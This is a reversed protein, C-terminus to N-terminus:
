LPTAGALIQQKLKVLYEAHSRYWDARAKLEDDLAMELMRIKESQIIDLLNSADEDNLTFEFKVM